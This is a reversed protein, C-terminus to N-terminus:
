LGKKQKGASLAMACSKPREYRAQKWATNSLGPKWRWLSQWLYWQNGGRYRAAASTAETDAPHQCRPQPQPSSSSTPHPALWPWLSRAAGLNSLKFSGCFCSSAPHPGQWQSQETGQPWLCQQPRPNPTAQAVKTAAVPNEPLAPVVAASLLWIWPCRDVRSSGNCNQFPCLTRNSTPAPTATGRGSSGKGRPGQAWGGHSPWTM